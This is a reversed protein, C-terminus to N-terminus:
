MTVLSWDTPRASRRTVWDVALLGFASLNGPNPPVLTARMGLLDMVAASQAPGSGGFAVMSCKRYDFGVESAHIRFARAVDENITEHIGWAARSREPPQQM